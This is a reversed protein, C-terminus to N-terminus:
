VMALSRDAHARNVGDANQQPFQIPAPSPFSGIGAQAPNIIMPYFQDNARGLMQPQAPQGQMQGIQAHLYQVEQEVANLANQATQFQAQAQALISQAKLLEERYASRSRILIVVDEQLMLVAPPTPPPAVITPAEPIAPAETAAKNRKEAWRQKAAAALKKRNEASMKYKRKEPTAPAAATEVSAIETM